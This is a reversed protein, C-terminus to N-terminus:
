DDYGPLLNVSQPIMGRIRLDVSVATSHIIRDM